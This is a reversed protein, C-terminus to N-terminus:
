KLMAPHDLFVHVLEWLVHYLTEHVEQVVFPDDSPVAFVHDGPWGSEEGGVLTITQLGMRRAAKVAARVPESRTTALGLVVDGPEGIARLQALGDGQLALAPLARKGVIVPHVFEVSIHLADSWQAGEGLVLLRHGAHFARALDRCALAIRAANAEFFDIPVETSARFRARAVERLPHTAEVAV